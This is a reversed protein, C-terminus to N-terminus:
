EEMFSSKQVVSFENKWINQPSRWLRQINVDLMYTVAFDEKSRVSRGSGQVIRKLTILEYIDPYNDLIYKIRKDGLSAYPAKVFIQFRSADDPLDIGEFMSPSLLVSPLDWDRFESLISELKQGREHEFIFIKSAYKRLYNALRETVAFSPTLIIGKEKKTGHHKTIELVNKDLKQMTEEQKMSNYNLALPKFFIIKKNDPDFNPPFQILKVKSPDLELTKVMYKDTITASMFINWRSYRLVQNFMSGIFIPKISLEKEEKNLQAVHEYDYDLLDGVKCGLNFYKKYLRSFKTFKHFNRENRIMEDNAQESISKYCHYLPQLYKKYSSENLKGSHLDDRIKKLNLFVDTKGLKLHDTIEEAIKNLRVVSLYIANHETFVDNLTHAEDFITVLRKQLNDAFMRDVFYYSYNTILHRILNKKSKVDLYECTKCEDLFKSMEHSHKLMVYHICEEASHNEGDTSQSSIVECKYRNAGKLMLFNPNSSFTDSYQKVLANNHMLIISALPNKDIDLLALTEAAAAAIISKGTGTPANLIVDQINENILANIIESVYEVQNDRSRFGINEFAQEIENQFNM